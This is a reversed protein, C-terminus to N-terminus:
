GVILALFRDCQQVPDKSTLHKVETTDHCAGCLPIDHNIGEEPAVRLLEFALFLHVSTESSRYSVLPSCLVSSSAIIPCSRRSTVFVPTCRSTATLSGSPLDDDKLQLM